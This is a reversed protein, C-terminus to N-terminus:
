VRSYIQNRLKKFLIKMIRIDFNLLHIYSMRAVSLMEIDLYEIISLMSQNERKFIKDFFSNQFSYLTNQQYLILQKLIFVLIALNLYNTIFGRSIERINACNEETDEVIILVERPEYVNTFRLTEDLSYYYDGTNKM